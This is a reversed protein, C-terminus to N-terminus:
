IGTPDIADNVLLRYNHASANLSNALSERWRKLALDRVMVMFALMDRGEGEVDHALSEPLGNAVM